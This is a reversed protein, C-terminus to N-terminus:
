PCATGRQEEHPFPSPPPPYPGLNHGCLGTGNLHLLSKQALTGFEHGSGAVVGEVSWPSTASKQPRTGEAEHCGWVRGRLGCRAEEGRGTSRRGSRNDQHCEGRAAQVGARERETTLSGRVGVGRCRWAAEPRRCRQTTQALLESCQAPAGEHGNEAVFHQEPHPHGLGDEEPHQHAHDEQLQAIILHVNERGRERANLMAACTATGISAPRGWPGVFLARDWDGGGGWKHRVTSHM